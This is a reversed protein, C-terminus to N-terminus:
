DIADSSSHLRRVRAASGCVAVSEMASRKAAVWDRNMAGGGELYKLAGDSDSGGPASVRDVAALDSVM